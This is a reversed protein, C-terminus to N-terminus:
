KSGLKELAINFGPCAYWSNDDPNGKLDKLAQILQSEIESNDIKLDPLVVALQSCADNASLLFQLQALSGHSNSDCIREDVELKNSALESKLNEFAHQLQEDALSIGSDQGAAFLANLSKVARVKSLCDQTVDDATAMHVFLANLSVILFLATMKM